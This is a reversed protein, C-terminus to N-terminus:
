LVRGTKKAFLTVRGEEINKELFQRGVSDSLRRDQFM